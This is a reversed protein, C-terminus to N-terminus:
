WDRRPDDKTLQRLSSRAAALAPFTPDLKALLSLMGNFRHRVDVQLLNDHHAVRNRLRRLMEVLKVWSGFMLQAVVDDHSPPTGCRPHSSPREAMEQAARNRADVLQRRLLSYLPDVTVGASSWEPVGGSKVSWASLEINIANRVAIEVFAIQGHLAGALQAACLYLDVARCRDGDAADIYTALRAPSVLRELADPQSLQASTM